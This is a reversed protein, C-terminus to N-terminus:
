MFFLGLSQLIMLIWFYGFQLHNDAFRNSNDNSSTESVIDEFRGGCVQVSARTHTHTHSFEYNEREM